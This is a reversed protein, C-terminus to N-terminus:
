GFNLRHRVTPTDDLEQLPFQWVPLYVPEGAHADRGDASHGSKQRTAIAAVDHPGFPHTARGGRALGGRGVRALGGGAGRPLGGGRGRAAGGFVGFLVRSMSSNRRLSATWFDPRRVSGDSSM